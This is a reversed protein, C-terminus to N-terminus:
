GVQFAHPRWGFFHFLSLAPAKGRGQRRAAALSFVAEDLATSSTLIAEM